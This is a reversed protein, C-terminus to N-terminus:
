SAAATPRRDLYVAAYCPGMHLVREVSGQAELLGGRTLLRRLEDESIASLPERLIV